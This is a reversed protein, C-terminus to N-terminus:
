VGSNAINDTKMLKVKKKIDTEVKFDGDPKSSVYQRNM